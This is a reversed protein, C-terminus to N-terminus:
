PRTRSWGKLCRACISVREWYSSDGGVAMGIFAHCGCSPCTFVYQMEPLTPLVRISNENFM